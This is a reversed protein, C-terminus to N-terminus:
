NLQNFGFGLKPKKNKPANLQLCLYKWTYIGSRAMWPSAPMLVEMYLYWKMGDMAFIAYTSGHVSLM